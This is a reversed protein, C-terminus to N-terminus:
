LIRQVFLTFVEPDTEELTKKLNDLDASLVNTLVDSISEVRRVTDGPREVTTIGPRVHDGSREKLHPHGTHGLAQTL